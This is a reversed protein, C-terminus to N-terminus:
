ARTRARGHDRRHYVLPGIALDVNVGGAAHNRDLPAVVAFNDQGAASVHNITTLPEALIFILRLEQSTEGKFVMARRDRKGPLRKASNATSRTVAHPGLITLSAGASTRMSFGFGATATGIHSPLGSRLKKPLPGMGFASFTMQSKLVLQVRPRSCGSGHPPEPQGPCGAM